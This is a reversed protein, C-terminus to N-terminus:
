ILVSKLKVSLYRMLDCFIILLYKVQLYVNLTGINTGYMHYYFQLCSGITLPYVPSVLWAKDGRRRPASSETYM